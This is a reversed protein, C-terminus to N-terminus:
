SLSSQGDWAYRYFDSEHIPEGWIAALRMAVAFLLILRGGGRKQNKCLCFAAVGVLLTLVCHVVLFTATPMKDNDVEYAFGTHWSDPFGAWEPGLSVITLFFWGVFLAAGVVLLPTRNKLQYFRRPM